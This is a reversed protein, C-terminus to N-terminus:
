GKDTNDTRLGYANRSGGIHMIIIYTVKEYNLEGEKKNVSIIIDSLQLTYFDVITFDVYLMQCLLM